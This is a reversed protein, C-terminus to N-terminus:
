NVDSKELILAVLSIIGKIKLVYNSKKMAGVILESTCQSNCNSINIVSHIHIQLRM